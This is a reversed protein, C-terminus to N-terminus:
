HAGFYINDPLNAINELVVHLCVHLCQHPDEITGNELPGQVIVNPFM